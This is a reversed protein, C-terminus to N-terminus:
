SPCRRRRLEERGIEVAQFLAIPVRGVARLDDGVDLACRRASRRPAPCCGRRPFAVSGQVDNLLHAGGLVDGVLAGVAVQVAVGACGGGGRGRCPLVGLQAADAGADALIKSMSGTYTRSPSNRGSSSVQKPHSGKRCQNLGINPLRNPM